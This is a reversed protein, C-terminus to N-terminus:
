GNTGKLKKELKQATRHVSVKVASVTMDMKDAVEQATYGKIRMLNFVKRQKKPLSDLAKEIDKYEGAHTTDTVFDNEFATFDINEVQRAKRRYHKRFYDMTRYSIISHLWPKFPRSADYTNRSKHISILVEQVLDDLADKQSIKNFLVNHIYPAVESLLRNYAKRDGKQSKAMLDAWQASSDKTM